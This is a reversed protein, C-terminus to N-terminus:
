FDRRNEKFYSITDERMIESLVQKTAVITEGLRVTAEEIRCQVMCDVWLNDRLLDVIKLFDDFKTGLSSFLKVCGLRDSFVRLELEAKKVKKRISGLTVM